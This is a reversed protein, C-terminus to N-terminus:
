RLLNRFAQVQMWMAHNMRIESPFVKGEHADLDHLFTGITVELEAIRKDKDKIRRSAVAGIQTTDRRETALSDLGEFGMGILVNKYNKVALELEEIRKAAELMIATPLTVLMEGSFDRGLYQCRLRGVLPYLNDLGDSM